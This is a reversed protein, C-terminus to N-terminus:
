ELDQNGMAGASLQLSLVPLASGELQIGAVM